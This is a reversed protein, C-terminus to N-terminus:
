GSAPQEADMLGLREDIWEPDAFRRLLWRFAHEVQPSAVPATQTDTAVLGDLELRVPWQERRAQDNIRDMFRRAWVIGFWDRFDIWLADLPASATRHHRAAFAASLTAAGLLLTAWARAAEANPFWESATASIPLIVLLQSAGLLLATPTFRTGVYNGLGMVMVLLYGLLMPTALRLPEGGWGRNWEAFAPWAFVLVLPVLVFWSWVRIGPRRAGLVAIPPCLMLVAVAYWLAGTAGSDLITGSTWAAIWALLAAAGWAWATRLTTGQLTARVRLFGVVCALLAAGAVIWLLTEM